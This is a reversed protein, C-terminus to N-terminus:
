GDLCEVKFEVLACTFKAPKPTGTTSHFELRPKILNGSMNKDLYKARVLVREVKARGREVCETWIRKRPLSDVRVLVSFIFWM